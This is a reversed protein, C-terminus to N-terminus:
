ARRTRRRSGPRMSDGCGCTATWSGRLANFAPPKGSSGSGPSSGHTTTAHGGWSLSGLHHELALCSWRDYMPAADTVFWHVFKSAFSWYRKGAIEAGQEVIACALAVGDDMSAPQEPLMAINSVIIPVLYKRAPCRTHLHENIAAVKRTVAATEMAPMSEAARLFRASAAWGPMFGDHILTAAEIQEPSVPVVPGKM